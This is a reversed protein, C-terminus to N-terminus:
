GYNRGKELKTTKRSKRGLIYQIYEIGPGFQNQTDEEETKRVVIDMTVPEVLKGSLAAGQVIDLSDRDVGALIAVLGFGKQIPTSHFLITLPFMLLTLVPQLCLVVYLLWNADLTSRISLISEGTAPYYFEPISMMDSAKYPFMFAFRAWYTTAIGTTFAPILWPSDLRDTAYQGISHVLVPMADLPFPLASPKNFVSQDTLQPTCRGDLLTISNRTIEWRGFCKQRRTNFMFAASRFLLSDHNMPDLYYALNGTDGAPDEYNGAFCYTGDTDSGSSLLLGLDWGNFLEWSNLYGEGNDSRQAFTYNWFSDNNIYIQGSTNYKTVTANVSASVYWTESLGLNQQISTVYDPAPMDLLAATTNDILLTNYGYARPLETFPPPISDNSSAAQFALNANIMYYISNNMVNANGLPASVLGYYGGSPNTIKVSSRGGTFRKYAASLGLPLTTLLLLAGRWHVGTHSAVMTNRVIADYNQLTSSGWQAELVLFLTPAVAKMCNAMISMLLGIVIIQGEYGLRWSLTLRPTVVYFSIALCSCSGLVALLDSKSFYAKHQPQGLANLDPKTLPMTEGASPMVSLETDTSMPAPTVRTYGKASM